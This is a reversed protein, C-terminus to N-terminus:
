DECKILRIKVPCSKVSHLHPISVIAGTSHVLHLVDVQSQVRWWPQTWQAERDVISQESTQTKATSSRQVSKVLKQWRGLPLDLPPEM